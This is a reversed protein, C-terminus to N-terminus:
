SINIIVSDGAEAAKAIFQRVDAFSETLWALPSDGPQAPRKWIVDPYIKLKTMREPDYRRTLEAPTLTSLFESFRRVQQPRLARSFGEDDLDEGGQMFYCAPEDGEDAMGTFLFHLGHWAKEIDISRDPDPLPLPADGESEPVVESITIPTLRLLWGLLGKPRVERVQPGSGDSELFGVVADPDALLREIDAETTRHLSCTMGM